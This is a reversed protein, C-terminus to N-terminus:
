QEAKINERANKSVRAIKAVASSRVERGCQVERSEVESSSRM